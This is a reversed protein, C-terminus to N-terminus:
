ADDNEGWPHSSGGPLPTLTGSPERGALLDAVQDVTEHAHHLVAERVFGGVHPAAVVNPLTALRVSPLNDPERGVDLAAGAIAGTTLAQYLADDDVLGGRGINVLVAEPRMQALASADILKETEKNHPATLVVVDIAALLRHLDDNPISDPVDSAYPDSVRVDMHLAQGLEAMRRGLNGYGVVGLTLGALQRGMEPEPVRGARYAITAAPLHRLLSITLGFALECVADVWGASGHIVMVGHQRAAPLDVTRVDMAGRVFARLRPLQAFAEAPADTVRDAVVIEAGTTSAEGIWALSGDDSHTASLQVRGLLRLRALAEDPYLRERRDRPYALLIAPGAGSGSDVADRGSM